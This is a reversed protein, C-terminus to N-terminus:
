YVMSGQFKKMVAHIAARDHKSECAVEAFLDRPYVVRDEFFISYNDLTYDLTAPDVM